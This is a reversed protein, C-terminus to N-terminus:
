DSEDHYCSVAEKREIPISCPESVIVRFTVGTVQSKERDKMEYRM